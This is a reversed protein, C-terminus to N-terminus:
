IDRGEAKIQKVKQEIEDWTQYLQDVVQQQDSRSQVQEDVILNDSMAPERQSVSEVRQLQQEM